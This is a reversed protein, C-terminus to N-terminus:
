GCHGGPRYAYVHVYKVDLVSPNPTNEISYGSGLALNVLPILPFVHSKPTDTQWVLRRDLYYGITQPTVKIGYDHFATVLSDPRVSVTSGGHLETVKDHTWLHLSTHYTEPFQGYYEIVDLEFSPRKDGQPRLSALWFAPWTGPGPPMKMRAEFYGYREGHGHGAGDGAAILGSQWRGNAMKRATIHLLGHDVAFPGDPGPDAFRADGFDGNWPTHAIWNAKGAFDKGGAAKGGVDKGGLDRAVVRFDAFDEFFSPTMGCMDLQDREPRASAPAMAGLSPLLLCLALRLGPLRM